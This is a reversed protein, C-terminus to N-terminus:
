KPWRLEEPLPERKAAAILAMQDNHTIYGGAALHDAACRVRGVYRERSRYRDLLEDDSFRTFTGSIFVFPNFDGLYDRGRSRGSRSDIRATRM